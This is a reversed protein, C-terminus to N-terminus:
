KLKLSKLLREYGNSEIRILYVGNAASKGSVDNGDWIIANDGVVLNTQKSLLKQGKLNYVTITAPALSPSDIKITLVDRFPNPISHVTLDRAPIGNDTLAVNGLRGVGYFFKQTGEESALWILAFLSDAEGKRITISGPRNTQQPDQLESIMTNWIYNNEPNGEEDLVSLAFSHRHLLRFYIISNGVRSLSSLKNNSTQRDVVMMISQDFPSVVLEREVIGLEEKQRLQLVMDSSLLKASITDWGTELQLTNENDMTFISNNLHFLVQEGLRDVTKHKPFENKPWYMQNLIQNDAVNRYIWVGLNFNGPHTRSGLPRTDFHYNKKYGIGDGTAGPYNIPKLIINLIPDITAYDSTGGCFDNEIDWYGNNTYEEDFAPRHVYGRRHQYISGWLHISGREKYPKAEPWLPNYWPYDLLPLWPRSGFQPFRYRHLDIRRFLTKGIRQSPTSGHPHQYEFTFVGDKRDNASDGLAILDGYIFIGGEDPGCNTHVRISDIPCRYGYKISIQKGSILTLKDLPNLPPADPATGVPTNAYLLDGILFITDQAAITVNGSITGKLWLKSPCYFGNGLPIEDLISWLTDSVGFYNRFLPYGTPPPFTNYVDAFDRRPTSFTARMLSVMGNNVEAFVIDPFSGEPDWSYHGVVPLTQIAETLLYQDNTELPAVNESLGGRFIQRHPIAGSASRVIGSTIVEDWFVPWGNNNGETTQKIWIDTNSRVKGYVEDSGTFMPDTNNLTKNIITLDSYDTGHPDYKCNFYLIENGTDIALPNADGNFMADRIWTVGNNHSRFRNITSGLQCYVDIVERTVLISPSGHVRMSDDNTSFLVQFSFEGEDDTRAYVLANEQNVLSRYVIHVIGDLVQMGGEGNFDIAVPLETLNVPESFELSSLAMAWLAFLIIAFSKM